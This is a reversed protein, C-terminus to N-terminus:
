VQGTGHPSGTRVERSGAHGQSATISDFYSNGREISLQNSM